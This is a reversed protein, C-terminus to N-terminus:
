DEITIKTVESSGASLFYMENKDLTICAGLGVNGLTGDFYLGSIKDAEAGTYYSSLVFTSMIIWPSVILLDTNIDLPFGKAQELENLLKEVGQKSTDLLSLSLEKSKLNLGKIVIERKVNKKIKEIKDIFAEYEIEKYIQTKEVNSM